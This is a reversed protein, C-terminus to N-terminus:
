QAFKIRSIKDGEIILLVSNKEKEIRKLNILHEGEKKFAKQHKRFINRKM